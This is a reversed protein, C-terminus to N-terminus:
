FFFKLSTVHTYKSVLRANNDDYKNRITNEKSLLYQLFLKAFRLKNITIYVNETPVHKDSNDNYEHLEISRVLIVLIFLNVIFIRKKPWNM